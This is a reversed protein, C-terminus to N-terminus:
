YIILNIKPQTKMKEKQLETSCLDTNCQMLFLINTRGLRYKTDTNKLMKYNEGPAEM